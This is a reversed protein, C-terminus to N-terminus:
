TLRGINDFQAEAISRYVDIVEDNFEFRGMLADLTVQVILSACAM